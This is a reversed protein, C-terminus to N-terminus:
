DFAANPRLLLHFVLEKQVPEAHILLGVQPNPVARHAPVLAGLLGAEIKARCVHVLQILVMDAHSIFSAQFAAGAADSAGVEVDLPAKGRSTVPDAM